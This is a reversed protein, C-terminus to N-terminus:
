CDSKTQCLKFNRVHAYAVITTSIVTLLKEGLEGLFHEGLLVSGILGSLGLVGYVLISTKKHAKCGLTLAYASTPIVGVVMWTHFAEQNLSLAAMSPLFVLLLPVALCHIVCLASFGVALKDATTIKM